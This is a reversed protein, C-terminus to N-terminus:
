LPCPSYLIGEEERVVGEEGRSRGLGERSRGRKRRGGWEEEGRREGSDAGRSRGM